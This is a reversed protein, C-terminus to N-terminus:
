EPQCAITYGILSIRHFKMGHFTMEKWLEDENEFVDGRM